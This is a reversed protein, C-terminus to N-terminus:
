APRVGGAEVSVRTKQGMLDLLIWVRKDPTVKEVTAVFDAFAGEIFQVCDGPKPEPPPLLAGTADCRQMLHSIIADPVPAPAAGFSVLRTIGYTSNISHWGGQGTDFAVFIYGAFLPKTKTIFKGKHRVSEDYTPLFTQFGQRALNRAAIQGCNPKVQALFWDTTRETATM